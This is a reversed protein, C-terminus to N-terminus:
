YHSNCLAEIAARSKASKKKRARESLKNCFPQLILQMILALMYSFALLVSYFSADMDIDLHLGNLWWVLFLGMATICSDQLFESWSFKNKIWREEFRKTYTKFNYEFQKTQNNESMFNTYAVYIATAVDNLQTIKIGYKMAIGEKAAALKDPSPIVGEQIYRELIDSFMGNAQTLRSSQKHLHSFIMKMTLILLPSIIFKFFDFETMFGGIGGHFRM